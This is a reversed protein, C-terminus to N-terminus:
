QQEDSRLSSIANTALDYRWAYELAKLNTYPMGYARYLAEAPPKGDRLHRSFNFFSSKYQSRILFRVLSYSQSYWLRVNEDSSGSTSKVRMLDTITFGGDSKIVELNERLWNPAALGREVQILTAMGESLWLPNPKAGLFFGDYYIHCLEHALIGPLEESEYLYVKRKPVSSAGGSWAPRGTVKRYTEQSKFLFLSVKEDRAWPSFDALDLMLNGHLNEILKITDPAAPAGEAYINFHGTQTKFFGPPIAPDKQVTQAERRLPQPKAVPQAPRQPLKPVLPKLFDTRPDPPGPLPEMSPPPSLPTQAQAILKQAAQPLPHSPLEQLPPPQATITQEPPIPAQPVQTEPIPAQQAMTQKGKFPNPLQKMGPGNEEEGLYQYVM